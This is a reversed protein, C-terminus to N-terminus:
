LDLHMEKIAEKVKTEYDISRGQQYVEAFLNQKYANWEERDTLALDNASDNEEEDSLALNNASNILEEDDPLALINASQQEQERKREAEEEQKRQREREKKEADIQNKIQQNESLIAEWDQLRKKEREQRRKEQNFLDIASQLTNQQAQYDDENKKLDEERKNLDAERTDQKSKKRTIELEDDKIKTERADLDIARDNLDKEKNTINTERTNLEEERKNLDAEKKKMEAYKNADYGGKGGEKHYEFDWNRSSYQGDLGQIKHNMYDIVTKHLEQLAGRKTMPRPAINDNEDLPLGFYHPHLGGVQIQEGTEKDVIFEGTKEDKLYGEDNHVAEYDPIRKYYLAAANRLDKILADKESETLSNTFKAEPYLILSLAISTDSRIKKGGAKVQRDSRKDVEDIFYDYVDKGSIPEIEQGQFFYRNQDSKSPDLSATKSGREEFAEYAAEKCGMSTNTKTRTRKLQKLQIGLGPM